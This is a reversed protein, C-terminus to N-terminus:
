LSVTCVLLMGTVDLTGCCASSKSHTMACHDVLSGYMGIHFIFKRNDLQLAERDSMETLKSTVVLQLGFVESLGQRRHTNITTVNAAAYTSFQSVIHPSLEASDM